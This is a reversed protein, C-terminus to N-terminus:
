FYFSLKGSFRSTDHVDMYELGFHVLFLNFQVGVFIKASDFDAKASSGTTFTTDFISASASSSIESDSTVYGFGLYPEVFVFDGSVIFDLGMSKQEIEVKSTVSSVTQNFSISSDSFHAKVALDLVAFSFFNWKTALAFHELDADGLETKPLLGLDFSLGFPIAVTGFLFGHPIATIDATSDIEKTFKDVNPSDTAGAVIGVELGFVDASSAPSVTTHLFNAAFEKNLQEFDSADINSFTPSAGYTNFSLLAMMLTLFKM